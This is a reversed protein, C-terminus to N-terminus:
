RGTGIMARGDLIAGVTVNSVDYDGNRDAVEMSTREEGVLARLEDERGHWTSIFANRMLRGNYGPPWSRDRVIDYVSTRVTDDGSAALVRAKASPHILAEQTAWFRTGLLAGDAGLMLARLSAAGM